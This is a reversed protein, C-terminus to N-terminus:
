KKERGSFRRLFATNEEIHTTNDRYSAKPQYNKYTYTGTGTGRADMAQSRFLVAAKHYGDRAGWDGAKEALDAALDAEDAKSELHRAEDDAEEIDRREEEKAELDVRRSVEDYEEHPYNHGGTPLTTAEEDEIDQPHLSQSGQPGGFHRSTTQIDPPPTNASKRLSEFKREIAKTISPSETTESGRNDGGRPRATEQGATRTPVTHGPANSWEYGQGAGSSGRGSQVAANPGISLHPPATRSDESQPNTTAFPHLKGGAPKHRNEDEADYSGPSHYADYESNPKAPKEYQHGVATGDAPIKGAHQGPTRLNTFNESGGVPSFVQTIVGEFAKEIVAESLMKLEDSKLEKFVPLGLNHKRILITNLAQQHKSFKFAPFSTLGAFALEKAVERVGNLIEGEQRSLLEEEKHTEDDRAALAEAEVPSKGADAYKKLRDNYFKTQATVPSFRRLIRNEDLKM